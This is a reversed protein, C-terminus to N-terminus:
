GAPSFRRAGAYQRAYYGTDIREVTVVAGSHPAHIMQGGGIYVGEHHVYGSSDAFFVVDGPRLDSAAVPVGVRGQAEAVRRLRIGLQGYIWYVLGSCDFGGPNSGGWRYPTGLRGQALAVAQDGLGAPAGPIPRAPANAVPAPRGPDAVIGDGPALVFPIRADLPLGGETLVRGATRAAAATTIDREGDM